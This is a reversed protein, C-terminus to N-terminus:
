AGHKRAYRRALFGFLVSVVGMLAAYFLFSGTASGGIVRANLGAIVAVLLNGVATTLLWFSMLTSKMSKPAQTFAFELGTTSFLVEGLTLLLYPIGQWLISLQEGADVRRQLMACAVFALAALLMGLTMRRLPRPRLGLREALPYLGFSVLPILLMVLVPNLSQISEADLKWPTDLFPLPVSLPRLKEGQLVWTTNTQDFLAWFIPIVSFLTLVGATRRCGDVLEDDFKRKGDRDLVREARSWFPASKDRATLCATAVALFGPKKGAPPVKTYTRSGALFVLLALGMFLGPIGFAWSYGWRDRVWPILAFAFFSGFNIAWYFLSYAKALLAKNSEDFQDGIFASVCPKIGGAGLAIFGLGLYLGWTTGEFVALALHGICYFVSLTLITRFRGLWRDALLAGLLPLFYVAAKFNHSVATASDKNIGLEKVMYLTLVASMGYYSLRECAENGVIFLARAPIRPSPSSM